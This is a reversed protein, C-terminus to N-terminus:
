KALGMEQPRQCHLELPCCKTLELPECWYRTHHAGTQVSGHVARECGFCVQGPLCCLLHMLAPPHDADAAFLLLIKPSVV